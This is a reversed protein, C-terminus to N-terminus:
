KNTTRASMYLYIKAGQQVGQQNTFYLEPPHILPRPAEATQLVVWKKKTSKKKKKTAKTKTKKTKKKRWNM